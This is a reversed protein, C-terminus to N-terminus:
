IKREREWRGVDDKGELRLHLSHIKLTSDLVPAQSCDVNISTCLFLIIMETWFVPRVCVPPKSIAFVAECLFSFLSCFVLLVLFLLFLTQRIITGGKLMFTLESFLWDSSKREGKNKNRTTQEVGGHSLLASIIFLPLALFSCRPVGTNPHWPCRPVHWKGDDMLPRRCRGLLGRANCRGAM